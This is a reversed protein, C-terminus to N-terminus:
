VLVATRWDGSGIAHAAQERMMGEFIKIAQTLPREKSSALMWEIDFSTIPAASITGAVLHDHLGCYSYVTFGLGQSVLDLAITANIEARKPM